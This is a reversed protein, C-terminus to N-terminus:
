LTRRLQQLFSSLSSLLHPSFCFIFLSLSKIFLLSFHMIYFPFLLTSPLYLRCNISPYLFPLPHFISSSSLPTPHYSCPIYNNGGVEERGKRVGEEAKRSIYIGEVKEFQNWGGGKGRRQKVPGHVRKKRNSWERGKRVGSANRKRGRM